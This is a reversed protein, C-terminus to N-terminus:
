SEWGYQKRVLHDIGLAELRAMPVTMTVTVLGPLRGIEVAGTLTVRNQVEEISVDALKAMRALGNDTAANLNGGSGIVQIPSSEELSSQGYRAALTQATEWESKTFPRALHPLDEAPPILIPGDNGLGKIVEVQVEAEGAVDTTHGAVEGDGQQAHMDGM